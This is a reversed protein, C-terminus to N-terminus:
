EKSSVKATASNAGIRRERSAPLPSSRKLDGFLGHIYDITVKNQLAAIEIRLVTASMDRCEACDRQMEHM